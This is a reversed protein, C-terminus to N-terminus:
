IFLIISNNKNNDKAVAVNKSHKKQEYLLTIIQDFSDIFYISCIFVKTIPCKAQITQFPSSTYFYLFNNRCKLPLENTNTTCLKLSLLATSIMKFM